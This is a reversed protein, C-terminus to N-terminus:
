SSRIEAGEHSRPETAGVDVTVDDIHVYNPSDYTITFRDLSPHVRADVFGSPPDSAVIREGYEITGFRVFDWENVANAIEDGLCGGFGDIGIFSYGNPQNQDGTLFVRGDVSFTYHIGDASEFRYTHFGDISLGLVFSWAGSSVVADGYLYIFEYIGAYKVALKGDCSYFYPGIPHNSKFQTEVWLSPPPPPTGPRAIDYRYIAYNGAEAWRLVFHGNEISESCPPECPDAAVWGATPDYPLVDGEYRYLLDDGIASGCVFVGFSLVVAYGRMFVGELVDSVIQEIITNCVGDLIWANARDFRQPPPM